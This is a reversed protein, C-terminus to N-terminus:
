LKIMLGKFAYVRLLKGFYIHIRKLKSKKISKITLLIPAHLVGQDANDDVAEHPVDPISDKENYHPM